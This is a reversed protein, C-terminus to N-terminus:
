GIKQAVREAIAANRQAYIETMDTTQHGLTHQSAELGFRARIATAASHRLQNPHWHPVGAVDCARAIARRYAAVDYHDGPTRKPSDVVNKGPYNGQKPGSKRAEHLRKRREAAAAKPSFVYATPDSSKLFPRLIKKAKPGFHIIRQLGHHSTKHTPPSYRWVKGRQHIDAARMDCIEGPRAGSLRQLKVMAAVVSSLRPITKDVVADDVPQVPASERAESRGARLGSVASLAHHVTAPVLEKATAWKFLFKIRGVQRNVVSRCWGEAVFANRVAELSLPGFDRALTRGYLKNLIALPRKFNEAETTPTGDAHRYYDVAHRTFRLILEVVHLDDGPKPMQRGAALYEGIIRDYEDRSAKTGHLGLYFCKGDIKVVAQGSAKHKQYSPNKSVLRPM